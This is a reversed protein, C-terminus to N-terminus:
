GSLSEKVIQNVMKGDAKGRVQPMVEKMIKGMDAPSSAGVSLIAEQVVKRIEEASLQEPLYEELIALEAEEKVALDERGADRFAEISERRKKASSVIEQLVQEDDLSDKLEIERNKIAAMLFRLVSVKTGDKAKMSVKIDEQVKGQLNL